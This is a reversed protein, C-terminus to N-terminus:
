YPNFVASAEEIGRDAFVRSAIALKAAASAASLAALDRSSAGSSLEIFYYPGTLIPFFSKPAPGFFPSSASHTM